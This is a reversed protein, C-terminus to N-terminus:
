KLTTSRNTYLHNTGADHHQTGPDDGEPCESVRSEPAGSLDRLKQAISQVVEKQIEEHSKRIKQLYTGCTPALLLKPCSLARVRAVEQWFEGPEKTTWFEFRRNERIVVKLKRYAHSRGM